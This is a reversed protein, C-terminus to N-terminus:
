TGVLATGKIPQKGEKIPRKGVEIPKLVGWSNEAISQSGQLTRVRRLLLMAAVVDM